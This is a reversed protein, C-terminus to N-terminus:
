GRPRRLTNKVESLNATKVRGARYAEARESLLEAHWAPSPVQAPTKELDAWLSEILRLKETPSMASIASKM